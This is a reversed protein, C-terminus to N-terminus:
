PRDINLYTLVAMPLDVGMHNAAELLTLVAIVLVEGDPKGQGRERIAKVAQEIRPSSPMDRVVNQGARLGALLVMGDDTPRTM